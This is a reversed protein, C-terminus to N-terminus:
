GEIDHSLYKKCFFSIYKEYMENKKRISLIQIKSHGQLFNFIVQLVRCIIVGVM